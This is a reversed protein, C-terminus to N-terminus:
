HLGREQKKLEGLRSKAWHALAHNGIHEAVDMLREVAAIGLPDVRLASLYSGCAHEVLGLKEYCQGAMFWAIATGPPGLEAASRYASAAKEFDDKLVLVEGLEIQARPDLPDIEVVRRARDEALDLDELWLAEKTRSQLLPYFNEDALFEICKRRNLCAKRMSRLLIWRALLSTGTAVCRLAFAAARYYRSTLLSYTFGDHAAKTKKLEDLALSSWHEVADVDQAIRASQVIMHIQSDFRAISGMPANAAILAFEDIHYPTGYDRNLMFRANARAYAVAEHAGGRAIESASMEHAYKTIAPYLCLAGLLGLVDARQQTDLCDYNILHDCLQQWRSSRLEQPLECPDAVRYAPLNTERLLSNRFSHPLVRQLRQRRPHGSLLNHYCFEFETRIFHPRTSLVLILIHVISGYLSGETSRRLNPRIQGRAYAYTQRAHNPGTSSASTLLVPGAGLRFLDYSRRNQGLTRYPLVKQLKVSSM